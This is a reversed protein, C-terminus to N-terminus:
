DSVVDEEGPDMKKYLRTLLAVVVLIFVLGGIKLVWSDQFGDPLVNATLYALGFSGVLAGCLIALMAKRKSMGLIQSFLAGGIAGTGSLPFMVFACTGLFTAKRMWPNRRLMLKCFEQLDQLKKGLGPLRFLLGANFVCICGFSLDMYTIMAAMHYPTTLLGDPSNLLVAFKGAVTAILFAKYGVEWAADHGVLLFVMLFISIAAVVPLIVAALSTSPTVGSQDPSDTGAADV